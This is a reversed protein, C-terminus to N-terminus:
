PAPLQEIHELTGNEEVSRGVLEATVGHPSLVDNQPDTLVLATDSPTILM